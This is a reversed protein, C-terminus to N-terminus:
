NEKRMNVMVSNRYQIPKDPKVNTREKEILLPLRLSRRHIFSIYEGIIGISFLIIGLLFLSSSSLMAVGFQFTDWFLIKSFVVLISFLFGISGFFLGSFTIYRMPKRSLTVLGLIGFDILFFLSASSKGNKRKQSIYKITSWPFGCACVLGKVFPYSDILERLCQIVKRDYIGFGTSDRVVKFDSLQELLFYYIKKFIFLIKNEKSSKRVCFIVSNIKKEWEFILDPILEPPDQLDAMLFINADADASLLVNTSSKVFGYNISNEILGVRSDTKMITKIKSITKDTSKNDEFIISFNYNLKDIGKTIRLYLEDINQEENYCPICIAICKKKSNSLTNEM